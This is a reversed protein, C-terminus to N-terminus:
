LGPGELGALAALGVLVALGARAPLPSLSDSAESKLPVPTESQGSFCPRM